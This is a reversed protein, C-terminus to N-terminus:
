PFCRVEVRTQDTPACTNEYIPTCPIQGACWMSVNGSCGGQKNGTWEGRAYGNSRCVFTAWADAHPKDNTNCGGFSFIPNCAQDPWALTGESWKTLTSPECVNGNRSYGADCSVVQCVGWATGLNDCLEAGTGNSVSCARSAGPTCAMPLCSNGSRYFGANCATVGCAGYGTGSGNCYQEGTGGSVECAVALNPECAWVPATCETPESYSGACTWRWMGGASQVTSPTGVDCLSGTPAAVSGSRAAAGCVGPEPAFCSVDPAAHAALSRPPVIGYATGMAPERYFDTASAGASTGFEVIGPYVQDIPEGARPYNALEPLDLAFPIGQTTVFHRTASSGDDATNFLAPNMGATGGYQPRHVEAQRDRNFLFIDFPADAASLPHGPDLAIDVVIDVYPRREENPVTNIWPRTAELGFLAHLDEALVVTAEAAAPDLRVDDGGGNPLNGISYTLSTVSSAPTGPLRLALGNRYGAGVAMVSLELHIGTLSASSDYLLVQNYAVVADNFDFDGRTPWLDEFMLMGYTRDAPVYQRASVRPDCPEADVDDHVGDGDSDVHPISQVPTGSIQAHAGSSLLLSLAALTATTTPLIKTLDIYM